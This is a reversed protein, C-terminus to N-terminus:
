RPWLWDPIDDAGDEHPAGPQSTADPPRSWGGIAQDPPPETGFGTPLPPMPAPPVPGSVSAADRAARLAPGGSPGGSVFGRLRSLEVLIEDFPTGTYAPPTYPGGTWVRRLATALEHAATDIRARQVHEQTLSKLRDLLLNLSMAVPMLEGGAIHARTDWLGRAVAAHVQQLHAIGAQLRQRQGEIEQAQAVIRENARSLDEARSADLLSRRVSDAGLWAAVATLAQVVIAVSIVDYPSGPVPYTANWYAQLAPTRTLELMSGITFVSTLSAIVIPGRRNVLVGSLVIPLVFLDYLRLDSLDLGGQKMAKGVIELAVALALCSLLAYGAATVHHRQALLYASATGIFTIVLAAVTIINLSPILAAPILLVVAGMLGLAILRALRQRRRLEHGRVVESPSPPPASLASPYGNEAQQASVYWQPPQASRDRM